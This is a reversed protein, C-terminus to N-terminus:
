GKGLFERDVDLASTKELTKAIVYLIDVNLAIM